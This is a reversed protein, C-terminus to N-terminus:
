NRKIEIEPKVDISHAQKGTATRGRMTGLYKRKLKNKHSTKGDALFEAEEQWIKSKSNKIAHLLDTNPAHKTKPHVVEGKKNDIYSVCSRNGGRDVWGHGTHMEIDQDCHKCAGRAGHKSKTEDLVEEKAFDRPNGTVAADRFEPEDSKQRGRLLAHILKAERGRIKRGGRNSSAIAKDVATKSYSHQYVNEPKDTRKGDSVAEHLDATAEWHAAAAGVLQLLFCRTGHRVMVMSSPMARLPVTQM